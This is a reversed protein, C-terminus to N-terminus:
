CCRVLAAATIYFASVRSQSIESARETRQRRLQELVEQPLEREVAVEKSMEASEQFAPPPPPSYIVM